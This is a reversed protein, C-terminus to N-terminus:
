NIYEGKEDDDEFVPLAAALKGLDTNTAIDAEIGNDKLFKIAANYDASTADASQVKALLGTAVASHLLALIDESAKQAM